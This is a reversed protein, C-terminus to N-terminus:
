MSIIARENRNVHIDILVAREGEPPRDRMLGNCLHLDDFCTDSGCKELVFNWHDDLRSLLVDVAGQCKQRNTGDIWGAVETLDTVNLTPDEILKTHQYLRIGADLM